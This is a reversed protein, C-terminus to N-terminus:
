QIESGNIRKLRVPLQWYKGVDPSDIFTALGCVGRFPSKTLNAFLDLGHADRQLQITRGLLNAFDYSHGAFAILEETGFRRRYQERFEGSVDTNSFFAGDLSGGVNKMLEPSDFLDSGFFEPHYHVARAQKLFAIAQFNLLLLGVKEPPNQKLRAIIARFDDVSPDVSEDVRYFIAPSLSKRIGESLDNFYTLETKVVRVSSVNAASLEKATSRAFDIGPNIFRAVTSKRVAVEPDHSLLILPFHLQEAVPALARSPETGWNYILEVKDRERQKHFASLATKSDHRSDDFVFTIDKFLDPNDMIAMEFGNRAAIGAAAVDGTLPAIVGIRHPPSALVLRPLTM